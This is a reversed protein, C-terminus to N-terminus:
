LASGVPLHFSKYFSPLDGSIGRNFYLEEATQARVYM